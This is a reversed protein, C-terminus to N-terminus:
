DATHEPGRDRWANIFAMMRTDDYGNLKELWGWATLAIVADANKRPVAVLKWNNSRQLLQRIQAKTGECDTLKSCDYSIVVHGHELNHVLYEDAVPQEYFGPDWPTDYHWGGTPPDSNYAPHPAGVAIHDRSQIPFHQGPEATTAGRNTLFIGLSAVLVVGAAAAVIWPWIPRPQTSPRARASSPASLYSKKM